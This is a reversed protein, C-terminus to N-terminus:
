IVWAYGENIWNDIRYLVEKLNTLIINLILGHKILLVFYFPAFEIDVNEKNKKLLVKMTIQYKFGKIEDLLDKFLDKISSKSAEFRVLLDKLDIIEKRCSKVYGKFVKSIKEINLEDYFPLENLLDINKLHKIRPIKIFVYYLPLKQFLRKAEKEDWFSM